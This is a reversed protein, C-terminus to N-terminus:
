IKLNYLGYIVIHLIHLVIPCRRPGPPSITLAGNQKCSEYYM